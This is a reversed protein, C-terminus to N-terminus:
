PIIFVQYRQYNRNKWKVNVRVGWEGKLPLAVAAKYHNHDAILPVSFDHGDQVPRIFQATVTADTVADGNEDKLAYIINGDQVSISDKWGWSTQEAVAKLTDNYSLGKEYAQETVVGTHTRVALTVMVADVAMFTMFFLVFLWPIYKDSPRIDTVDRM